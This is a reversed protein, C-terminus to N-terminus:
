GQGGPRGPGGPGAGQGKQGPAVNFGMGEAAVM